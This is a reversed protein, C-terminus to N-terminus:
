ASNWHKIMTDAISEIHDLMWWHGLGALHVATAELDAALAVGMDITGAFPDDSPLIILGHRKESLRLREGLKRLEPQAVSRYLGLVCKGMTQNMAPAIVTALKEPLGFAILLQISQEVPLGFQALIMEEGLDPTQWTKAIDHWIYDPHMTGACDAVWSRILDPRKELISYVHLAGWDHGVLDINGGLNELQEILWDRYGIRTIELGEPLSTGFGPPSLAIVDKVGKQELESFLPSWIASNVPNGHIFVKAM